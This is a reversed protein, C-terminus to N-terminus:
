FIECSESCGNSTDLDFGFLNLQIYEQKWESDDKAMEFKNKSLGVIDWITRNNRFFWIPVPRSKEQGNPIFYNYKFEMSSWWLVSDPREKVITLLKRLSKKFCLDCNGEYGKLNLKFSQNKWFYNIDNKTKPNHSVLPYIYRNKKATPSVRDIEDVRIGIATYCKEWGILKKYANIPQTKLERTCHLYSVNPIGYKKIMEEFPEGNRSATKYDVIKCTTGKNKNNIVAELWIVNFGWEIDCKNVFELTEEFEKGTNAFVVVMEYKYKLNELCWKTMYASTRGGSFSILLKEM